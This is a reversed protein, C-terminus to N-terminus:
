RDSSDALWRRARYANPLVTKMLTGRCRLNHSNQQTTRGAKDTVVGGLRKEFAAFSDDADIEACVLVIEAHFMGAQRLM